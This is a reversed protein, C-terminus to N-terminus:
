WLQGLAFSLQTRTSHLGCHSPSTPFTLDCSKSQSMMRSLLLDCSNLCLSGNPIYPGQGLGALWSLHWGQSGQRIEWSLAERGTTFRSSGDRPSGIQSPFWCLHFCFWSISVLKQCCQRFIQFSNGRFSSEAGMPVQLEILGIFKNKESAM